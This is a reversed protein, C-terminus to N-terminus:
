PNKSQKEKEEQYRGSDILRRIMIRRANESETNLMKVITDIKLNDSYQNFQPDNALYDLKEMVAQGTLRQFENYEEPTLKIKVKNHTIYKLVERPAQRTDGTAEYLDLVMQLGPTPNYESVFAPNVFVNFLTNSDGQYVEKDEGTVAVRRPLNKSLGPLRNAIVNLLEKLFNEDKTDRQYKDTIQRLQNVFTGTFGSVSTKAITKATDMAGYGQFLRKVGESLPNEEMINLVGEISALTADVADDANIKKSEGINAGLAISTAVPQMWQYSFLKDGQQYKAADKKFGSAIWRMLATVNLKYKGMGIQEKISRMDKDEEPDGSGTIIGNAALLYGLGAYMITGYIARSFSEIAVRKSRNRQAVDESVNRVADITHYLGKIFGAPSFELSRSFLIGQTRAYKLFIDGLGFDKGLNFAKKVKLMNDGLLNKGRFTVREAFEKAEDFQEQKLTDLFTQANEKLKDGTLGKNIGDLYAMEGIADRLGRMYAAYDSM